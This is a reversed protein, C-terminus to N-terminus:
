APCRRRRKEKKASSGVNGGPKRSEREPRPTERLPAQSKPTHEEPRYSLHNSRVGSLPSTSRELRDLGVVDSSPRCVVSSPNRDTTRRGDETRRFPGYSLQSLAQKALLLDDTRDRRAGGAPNEDARGCFTSERGDSPWFGHPPRTNDSMTFLPDIRVDDRAQLSSSPACVWTPSSSRVGDSRDQLLLSTKRM